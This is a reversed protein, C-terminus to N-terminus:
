HIGDTNRSSTSRSEPDHRPPGSSKRDCDPSEQQPSRGDGPGAVEKVVTFEIRNSIHRQRDSSKSPCASKQGERRPRLWTRSLCNNEHFTHCRVCCFKATRARFPAQPLMMIKRQREKLNKRTIGVNGEKDYAHPQSSAM